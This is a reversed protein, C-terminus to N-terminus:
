HDSIKQLDSIERDPSSMLHCFTVVTVGAPNIQQDIVQTQAPQTTSEAPGEAHLFGAEGMTHALTATDLNKSVYSRPGM